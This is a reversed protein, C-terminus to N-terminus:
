QVGAMADTFSIHPTSNINMISIFYLLIGKLKCYYCVQMAQPITMQIYIKFLSKLLSSHTAKILGAGFEKQTDITRSFLSSLEGSLYIRPQFHIM